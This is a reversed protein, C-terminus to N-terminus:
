EMLRRLLFLHSFPLESAPLTTMDSTYTWLVNNMHDSIRIFIHRYIKDMYISRFFQSSKIKLNMFM